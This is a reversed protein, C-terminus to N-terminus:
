PAAAKKAADEFRQLQRRYYDNAWPSVDTVRRLTKVAAAPDGARCQVEALTDLFAPEAPKLELAHTAAQLAAPLQRGVMASFWALSNYGAPDRPLAAIQGRLTAMVYDSRQRWAASLGERKAEDPCSAALREGLICADTSEPDIRWAAECSKMAEDWDAPKGTELLTWGTTILLRYEAVDLMRERPAAGAPGTSETLNLLREHFSPSAGRLLKALREYLKAAVAWRRNAEDSAAMFRLAMADIPTDAPPTDLVAQYERQTLDDRHLDEFARALVLHTFKDAPTLKTALAFAEDRKAPSGGAEEAIGLLCVLRLDDVTAAPANPEALRKTEPELLAKAEAARGESLMARALRVIAQARKSRLSSIQPDPLLPAPGAALAAASLGLVFVLTALLRKM